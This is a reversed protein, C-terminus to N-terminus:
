LVKKMREKKNKDKKIKKVSVLKESVGITFGM